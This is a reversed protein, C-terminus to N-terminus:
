LPEDDSTSPEEELSVFDGGGYNAESPPRADRFEANVKKVGPVNEAAIIAAKRANDSKIVGKLDVIGDHVAVELDCPRWAAQEIEAIIRDRIDDDAATPGAVGRSLGTVAALFDSRTLIGVLQDGRMVPLRKVNGSEMKQAAQELSTDETITLPDPTMIEGVKRGREHAFDAAVRDPGILFSLWRGRKRETGIEARRIFDGESIIGVLKGAGDVVPLGSIHHRLMADAAEVVTADTGITIVHRTMIQQARM